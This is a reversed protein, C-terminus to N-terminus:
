PADDEPRVASELYAGCATSPSGAAAVRGGDLWIAGECLSQVLNLDHSALVLAVGQDRLAQIRGLCKAQFAADGVALVEDVVLVQPTLSTAVAFGLRLTMGSSYTRVPADFFGDLGAFDAIEDARAQFERGGLGAVLAMVEANERGSLEPHFGSGLELLASVRGTVGVRGTDPQYIGAVVRLLTSKGAGNAGVVGLAQGPEVQLSVDRLADVTVLPPRPRFLLVDLLASKLTMAGKPYPRYRFRKSVGELVVAPSGV